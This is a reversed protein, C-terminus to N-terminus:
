LKSFDEERPRKGLPELRQKYTTWLFDWAERTAEQPTKGEQMYTQINRRLHHRQMGLPFTKLILMVGDPKIGIKLLFEALEAPTIEPHM